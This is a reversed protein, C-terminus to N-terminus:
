EEKKGCTAKFMLQMDCIDFGALLLFPSFLVKLVKMRKSEIGAMKVLEFGTGHMLRRFSKATFFRLHTRDLVGSEEYKWDRRVLLNILNGWFRVNPISGVLIGNPALKGKLSALFAEPDPVHEIVDNCVVVDFYAAPLQERVEDYTGCLVKINRQRAQEAAERVPEVGWYEVQDPFNLRFGGAACGIELVKQAKEPIMGYIEPRRNQYYSNSKPNMVFIIGYGMAGM